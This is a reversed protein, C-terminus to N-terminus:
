TLFEDITILNPRKLRRGKYAAPNIVDKIPRSYFNYETIRFRDITHFDKFDRMRDNTIISCNFKNALVCCYFDDRGISTHSIYKVKDYAEANYIYIRLKDCLEQCNFNADKVVFMIRDKFFRKLKQTTDIITSILLKDSMKKDLDHAVNLLDVVINGSNNEVKGGIITDNLHEIVILVVIAFIILYIYLM